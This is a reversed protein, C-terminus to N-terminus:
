VMVGLFIPHLKYIFGLPYFGCQCHECLYYARRYYVRDQVTISMGERRRVYKADEGCECPKQDSPYKEDQAELWLRMVENGLEHTMQKVQKEMTSLNEAETKGHYEEVIAPLHSLLTEQVQTIFDM